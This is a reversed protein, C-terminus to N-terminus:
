GLVGLKKCWIGYLKLADCDHSMEMRMSNCNFPYYVELIWNGDDNVWKEHQELNSKNKWLVYSINSLMVIETGM